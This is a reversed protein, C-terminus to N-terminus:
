APRVPVRGRLRWFATRRDHWARHLPRGAISHELCLNVARCTALCFLNADSLCSPPILARLVDIAAVSAPDNMSPLSALEEITRGGINVWIREYERRAQEESPNGQWDIGFHRLCDLGVEIARANQGLSAYLDIRLCAIAAQETTTSARSWLAELRQESAELEGTLFECEARNIELAFALDHRRKWRDDHALLATGATLYGLASAFAASAKARKGAILNLGALEDREDQSTMLVAGRNLQSVIEFIAEERKEQPTHALLARGTRLHAEARSNEPILGYAAEHLRDHIFRYSSDTRQVLEQRLAEQLAAHVEQEPTALVLALTSTQAINGLCALQQLASQTKLPLRDLMGAMLDAVNDTYGKAQIRNLDWAWQGDGHDFAVLGEQALASLFQIAFFPNGGTKGHVLRALPTARDLECHLFDAILQVVNDLSLPALTIEQVAAGAKRIADLKLMLPHGASVENDRYAGIM